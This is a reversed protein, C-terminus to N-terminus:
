YEGDLTIYDFVDCEDLEIIGEALRRKRNREVWVDLEENTISDLAQDIEKKLREINIM